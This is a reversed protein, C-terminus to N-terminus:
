GRYEDALGAIAARVHLRCLEQAMDLHLRREFVLRGAQEPIAMIADAAVRVLHDPLTPLASRMLELLRRAAHLCLRRNANDLLRLVATDSMLQHVVPGREAITSLYLRAAAILAEEHPTTDLAQMIGQESLYGLERALGANLVAAQTDFYHYILGKSVGAARAIAEMSMASVGENLLLRMAVDLLQERRMEVPLRAREPAATFVPEAM